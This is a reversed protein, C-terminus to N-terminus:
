GRESRFFHDGEVLSCYVRWWVTKQNWSKTKYGLNYLIIYIYIPVVGWGTVTAFSPKYPNGVLFTIIRTTVTVPHPTSRIYIYIYIIYVSYIVGNYLHNLRGWTALNELRRKLVELWNSSSSSGSANSGRNWKVNPPMKNINVCLCVLSYIFSFYFCVMSPKSQSLKSEILGSRLRNSFDRCFLEQSLPSCSVYRHWFSRAM